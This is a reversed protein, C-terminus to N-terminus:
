KWTHDTFSRQCDVCQQNTVVFVVEFSQQLLAGSFVEKQVTLRLRIRRSHEECWVFRADVVKLKNLGRIRKMLISLMQPSELEVAQFKGLGASYRGCNRCYLVTQETDVEEAINVRHSLCNLCMNAPNPEIDCGCSCCATTYKAEAGAQVSGM